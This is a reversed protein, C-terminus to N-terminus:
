SARCTDGGAAGRRDMEGFVVPDDGVEVRAGFWENRISDCSVVGDADIRGREVWARAFTSKGAAPPGVLLILGVPM